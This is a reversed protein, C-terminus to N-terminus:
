DKENRERYCKTYGSKTGALLLETKLNGKVTFRKQTTNLDTLFPELVIFMLKIIILMGKKVAM